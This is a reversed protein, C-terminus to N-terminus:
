SVVSTAMTTAAAKGEMVCRPCAARCILQEACWSSSVASFHLPIQLVQDGRKLGAEAAKSGSEVADIFIRFGKEQGGLLSFALPSDRSPKTLTVLRPKAKAACAINLLRLHGCMKQFSSGDFTLNCFVFAYIHMCIHKTKKEMAATASVEKELNNEFEELFHTM